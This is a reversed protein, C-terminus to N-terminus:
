QLELFMCNASSELRRLWCGLCANTQRKVSINCVEAIPSTAVYQALNLDVKKTSKFFM